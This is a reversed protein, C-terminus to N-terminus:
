KREVDWRIPYVHKWNSRRAHGFIANGVIVRADINHGSGAALSILQGNIRFLWAASWPRSSDHGVVNGENDISTPHFSFPVPLSRLGSSATWVMARRVGREDEAEGVVAGPDNISCAYFPRGPWGKIVSLGSVNSWVFSCMQCEEHCWGLIQGENNIDRAESWRTATEPLLHMGGPETWRFVRHVDTQPSAPINYVHGVVVNSDNIACASSTIVRLTASAPWALRWGHGM